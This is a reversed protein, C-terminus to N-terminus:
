VEPAFTIIPRRPRSIDLFCKRIGYKGHDTALFGRAERRFLEFAREAQALKELQAQV